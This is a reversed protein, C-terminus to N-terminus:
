HRENYCLEPASYERSIILALHFPCKGSSFLTAQLHSLTLLCARSGRRPQETARCHLDPTLQFFVKRPHLLFGSSPKTSGPAQASFSQVSAHRFGHLPHAGCGQLRPNARRTQTHLSAVEGYAWCGPISCSRSRWCGWAAEPSQLVKGAKEGLGVKWSMVM